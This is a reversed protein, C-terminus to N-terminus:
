TLGLLRAFSRDIMVGMERIGNGQMNFGLNVLGMVYYGLSLINFVFGSIIIAWEIDKWRIRDLWYRCFFYFIILIFTAGIARLAAAPYATIVGRLDYYVYFGIFAIEFFLLKSITMKPAYYLMLILLLLMYPKVALGLQVNFQSGISLFLLMLTLLFVQNKSHRPSINNTYDCTIDSKYDM